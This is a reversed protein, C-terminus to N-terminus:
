KQVIYEPTAMILFVTAKIRKLCGADDSAVETAVATSITDKTKQSLADAAFLLSYRDVLGKADKQKALEYDASYETSLVDGKNVGGIYDNILNLYKAVTVENCIQFEPATIKNKAM